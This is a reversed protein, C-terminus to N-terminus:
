IGPIQRKQQLWIPLSIRPNHLDSVSVHIHSHPVLGRLKMEPFVYIPNETCHPPFVLSSLHTIRNRSRNTPPQYSLWSASKQWQQFTKTPVAMFPFILLSILYDIDRVASLSVDLIHEWCVIGGCTLINTLQRNNFRCNWLSMKESSFM